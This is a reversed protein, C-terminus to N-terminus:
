PTSSDLKVFRGGILWEAVFINGNSDVAMGHPSNFKGAELLKSPIISGNADVNNPWGPVDAVEDNDGLYTVLNDNTDIITLRARLEAVIMLNGYTAFGSPSTLYESGFCRIFKGALDYVQIRGNARDAIFLEHSNKRLDIFIAHPCDFRGAEGESGDISNIYSGDKSFRHIQNQGYGDTVWIDGNGGNRIENIAVWTPAYIGNSYIPLPPKPLVMVTDGSLTKKVVQGTYIGDPNPYEYATEPTRKRGNDAIWLYEVGNEKVLTMGHAEQLGLDWSNILEGEPNFTVIKMDGHHLTIINGSETVVVGHHAWGESASKPNPFQIWDEQWEYTYKGTGIRM